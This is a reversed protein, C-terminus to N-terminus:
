QLEKKFINAEPIEENSFTFHSKNFVQKYPEFYSQVRHYLCDGWKPELFSIYLKNGNIM